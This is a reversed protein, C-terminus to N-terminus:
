RNRVNQRLWFKFCRVCVCVCVCVVYVYSSMCLWVCMSICGCVFIGFPLVVSVCLHVYVSLSVYESVESVFSVVHVCVCVCLYVSM